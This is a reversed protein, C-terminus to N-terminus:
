SEEELDPEEIKVEAPEEEFDIENQMVWKDAEAKLLETQDTKMLHYLNTVADIPLSHAGKMHKKLNVGNKGGEVEVSCFPCKLQQEWTSRDVQSTGRPVPRLLGAVEPQPRVEPRVPGVPPRKIREGTVSVDADYEPLLKGGKM